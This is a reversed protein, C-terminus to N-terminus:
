RGFGKVEYVRAFLRVIGNWGLYVAAIVLLLSWYNVRLLYLPSDIWGLALAVGFMVLIKVILLTAVCLTGLQRYEVLVHSRMLTGMIVPAVYFVTHFVYFSGSFCDMIIGGGLAFVGATLQGRTATLLLLFILYLDIGARWEPFRLYLALQILLALLALAVLRLPEAPRM